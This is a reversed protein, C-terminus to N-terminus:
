KRMPNVEKGIRFLVKQTKPVDTKSSNVVNRHRYRTLSGKNVERYVIQTLGCIAPSPSSGEVKQNHALRAEM